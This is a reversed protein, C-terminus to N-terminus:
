ERWLDGFGKINDVEEPTGQGGFTAAAGV